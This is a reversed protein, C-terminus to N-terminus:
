KTADKSRETDTEKLQNYTAFFQYYIDLDKGKKNGRQVEGLALMFSELAGFYQMDVIYSPLKSEAISDCLKITNSKDYFVRQQELKNIRHSSIFGDFVQLILGVALVIIAYWFKKM